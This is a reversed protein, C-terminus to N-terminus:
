SLWRAGPPRGAAEIGGSYGGEVLGAHWGSIASAKARARGRCAAATRYPGYAGCNTCMVYFGQPNGVLEVTEEGCKPCEGRM